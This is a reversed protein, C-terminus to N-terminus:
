AARDLGYAASVRELIEQATAKIQLQKPDYTNDGTMASLFASMDRGIKPALDIHSDATLLQSLRIVDNGHKRIDKADIAEGRQKRDSLDLWARAKLPILQEAGIWPLSDVVQSGRIIFAYYDDDLIIASLSAVSDGIPIPTLHSDPALRLGDPIRCFLELMAPFSSDGPKQFRYLM